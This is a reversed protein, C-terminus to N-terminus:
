RSRRPSRGGPLPIRGGATSRPSRPQRIRDPVPVRAGLRNLSGRVSQRVCPSRDFLGDILLPVADPGGVAGLAHYAAAREAETGTLLEPLISAVTTSRGRLGAALALVARVHRNEPLQLASELYLDPASRALERALRGAPLRRTRVARMLADASRAGGIRGLAGAAAARVGPHPDLLREGLLPVAVELRAAGCSRVSAARIRPDPHRLGDVVHEGLAESEPDAGRLRATFWRM